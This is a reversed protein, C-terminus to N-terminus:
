NGALARRAKLLRGLAADPLETQLLRDVEARLREAPGIRRAYRAFQEAMEFKRDAALGRLAWDEAATADLLDPVAALAQRCRECKERDSGSHLFTLALLAPVYDAEVTVAAVYSDRAERLRHESDLTRGLNYHNGATPYRQAIRRLIPLALDRRGSADHLAGKTRLYLFPEGAALELARDVAAHAAPYQKQYTLIRALDHWLDPDEPRLDLATRLEREAAPLEDGHRHVWALQQHLRASGPLVGLAATLQIRATDHDGAGAAALGLWAAALARELTADPAVAMAEQFHAEATRERGKRMAAEGARLAQLFPDEPAPAAPDHAARVHRGLPDGADLALVAQAAALAPDKEGALHALVLEHRAQQLEAHRQQRWTLTLALTALLALAAVGAWRLGRGHRQAFEELHFLPGLTVRPPRAGAALADLVQALELASRHRRVPRLATARRVVLDVSRPLGPDIRRVPRPPLRRAEDLATTSDHGPHPVTATLLEYLIGGLGHVDTRPGAPEGRAQEPAMFSPTGLVDGTGTLTPEGDARALGFDILVPEGDCARLIVNGPKLDRHLVGHDHAAQVARALRAVLACARAWGPGQGPLQLRDVFPRSGDQRAAAIRDALSEGAIHEMVLFPQGEHQGLGHVRVVNPHRLGQLAAAERRLRELARPSTGAPGQLLKIAVEAGDPGRALWVAGTGGRGLQRLVTFDGITPPMATRRPLLADASAAARLAALLRDGGDPHAGAFAEATVDEGAERRELFEALLDELREPTM